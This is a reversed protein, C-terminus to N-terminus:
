DITLIKEPHYNKVNESSKGLQNSIIHTEGLMFDFNEHTHGAIWYKPKMECILNDLSNAYLYQYIDDSHKDHICKFTPTYHTIVIPVWKKKQCLELMTKIYEINKQNFKNYIFKNFGNIKVRFHPFIQTSHIKSWLTSGIFCYRNNVLYSDNNLIILKPIHEQLQNADKYLLQYPKPPLTRRRYFEHNGLVYFVHKYYVSIDILFNKLQEYRYLNGIDGALILVDVGKKPTIYKLVDVHDSEEYEIHLDSYFQVQM